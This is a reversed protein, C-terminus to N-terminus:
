PTGLDDTVIFMRAMLLATERSTPTAPILMTVEERAAGVGGVSLLFAVSLIPEWKAGTPNVSYVFRYRGEGEYGIHFSENENLPPHVLFGLASGAELVPCHRAQQPLLPRQGERRPKLGIGPRRPNPFLAVEMATKKPIIVRLLRSAM